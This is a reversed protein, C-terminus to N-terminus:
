QPSNCWFFCLIIRINKTFKVRKGQAHWALMHLLVGPFSGRTECKNSQKTPQVIPKSEKSFSFIKGKGTTSSSGTNTGRLFSLLTDQGSGLHRKQTNKGQRAPVSSELPLYLLRLAFCIRLKWKLDVDLVSVEIECDEYAKVGRHGHM